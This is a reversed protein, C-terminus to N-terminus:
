ASLSMKEKLNIVAKKPIPIELYQAKPKPVLPNQALNKCAFNISVAEEFGLETTHGKM